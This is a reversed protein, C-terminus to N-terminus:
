SSGRIYALLASDRLRGPSIPVVGSVPCTASLTKKLMSHRRQLLVARANWM